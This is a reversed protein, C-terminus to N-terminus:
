AANSQIFNNFESAAVLPTRYCRQRLGAFKNFFLNQCLHKGTFKTFNRLVGKKSFVEPRSGRYTKFFISVKSETSTLDLEFEGSSSTITNQRLLFLLLRKASSIKVQLAILFLSWCLHKGLFNAFNKLGYKEVSCSRHSSRFLALLDKHNMTHRFSARTM